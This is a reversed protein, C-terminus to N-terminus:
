ANGERGWAAARELLARLTADDDEELSAWMQALVREVAGIAALAHRRNDRLIQSWMDPASGALRTVDRGGPGLEQRAVGHESLALAVATAVVQPLHSTWALQEDHVRADIPVTVGGLARWFSEALSRALPTTEAAACLYIRAGGLLGTRSSDWGSRHDGALPHAGVFRMGLGLASATEVLSRKTSGTDTILPVDRLRPAAARLVVGASIVPLALVVVDAEEAGAMDADLAHGVIGSALAAGLTAEDRDWGLVRIGREALDRAISGGMLGLGAIAVTHIPTV